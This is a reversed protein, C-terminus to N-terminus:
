WGWKRFKIKPHKRSKKKTNEGWFFGFLLQNKETQTSCSNLWGGQNLSRIKKALNLKNEKEMFAMMTFFLVRISKKVPETNQVRVGAGKSSRTEGRDNRHM